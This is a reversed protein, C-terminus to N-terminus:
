IELFNKTDNWILNLANLLSHDSNMLVLKAKPNSMLYNISVNYPVTEDKIGHFILTPINRNLQLTEYKKADEVFGYKLPLIKGWQYHEIELFGQQEWQKLKNKDKLLIKSYFNLAPAMLVLKQIKKFLPYDYILNACLTSVYGGLSSGILVFKKKPDKKLINLISKIQCTITLETFDNCNLDPIEISLNIKKFQKKFFQAKKSKPSSAFGHLYIYKM